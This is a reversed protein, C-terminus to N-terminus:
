FYGGKNFVSQLFQAIEFALNQYIHPVGTDVWCRSTFFIVGRWIIVLKLNESPAFISMFVKLWREKSNSLQFKFLTQIEIIDLYHDCGIVMM